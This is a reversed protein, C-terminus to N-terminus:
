QPINRQAVQVGVTRRQSAGLRLLLVPFYSVSAFVITMVYLDAGGGRVLIFSLSAVAFAFFARFTLGTSHAMIIERFIRELVIFVLAMVVIGGMHFNLFMESPFPILLSGGKRFFIPDLVLTFHQLASIPKFPVIDRPFPLFLPKLLSSGLLPPLQGELVMDISVLAAPYTHTVEINELFAAWFFDGSVYASIYFIGSLANQTGFSGYGRAISATVILVFVLALGGLGLLITKLNLRFPHAFRSIEILCILILCMIIERKNDFSVTLMLMLMAVYLAYRLVFSKDTAYYLVLIVLGMRFGFLLPSQVFMLVVLGLCGVVIYVNANHKPQITIGGAMMENVRRASNAAILVIVTMCALLYSNILPIWEVAGIVTTLYVSVYGQPAQSAGLAFSGGLYFFALTAPSFFSISYQINQILYILAGAFWVTYVIWFIPDSLADQALVM